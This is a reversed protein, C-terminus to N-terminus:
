NKGKREAEPVGMEYWTKAAVKRAKRIYQKCIFKKGRNIFTNFEALTVNYDFNTDAKSFPRFMEKLSINRNHNADILGFLGKSIRKKALSKRSVKGCRRCKNCGRKQNRAGKNCGRRSRMQKKWRGIKAKWAGRRNARLRRGGQGDDEFMDEDNFDIKGADFEYDGLENHNEGEPNFENPMEPM